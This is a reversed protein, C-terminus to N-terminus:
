PHCKEATCALPCVIKRFAECSDPYHSSFGRRHRGEIEEAPELRGGAVQAKGLRRVFQEDRLGGDAPLDLRELLAQPHLQERAAIATKRQGLGPLVHIAGGVARQAGQAFGGLAYRGAGHLFHDGDGRRHCKARQPQDRAQGPKLLLM